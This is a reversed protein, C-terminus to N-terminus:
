IETKKDACLCNREAQIGTGLYWLINSVSGFSIKRLNELTVTAFSSHMLYPSSDRERGAGMVKVCGFVKELVQDVMGEDFSLSVCFIGEGVRGM